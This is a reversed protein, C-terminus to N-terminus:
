VSVDVAADVPSAKVSLSVLPVTVRVHAAPVPPPLGPPQEPVLQYYVRLLVRLLCRNAAGHPPDTQTRGVDNDPRTVPHATTPYSPPSKGPAVSASRWPAYCRSGHDFRRCHVCVLVVLLALSPTRRDDSNVVLGRDQGGDGAVQSPAEALAVAHHARVGAGVSEVEELLDSGAALLDRQQHRVLPHGPREPM